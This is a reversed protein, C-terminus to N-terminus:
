RALPSRLSYIGPFCTRIGPRIQRIAVGEKSAITAIIWKSRAVTLIRIFRICQFYAHNAIAAHTLKAPAAAHKGPSSAGAPPRTSCGWACAANGTAV